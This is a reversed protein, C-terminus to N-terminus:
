AVNLSFFIRDIDDKSWGFHQALLIIESMQFDANRKGNLITNLKARSMKLLDAVEDQKISHEVLFAKLRPYGNVPMKVVETGNCKRLKMNQNYENFTANDICFLKIM